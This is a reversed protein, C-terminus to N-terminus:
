NNRQDAKKLSRAAFAQLPSESRRFSAMDQVGIIGALLPSPGQPSQIEIARRLLGGIVERNIDRLLDLEIQRFTDLSFKGTTVFDTLADASRDFANVWANAMRDASQNAERGLQEFV